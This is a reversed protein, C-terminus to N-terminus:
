SLATRDLQVIILMTFGNNEYVTITGCPSVWGRLNEEVIEAPTERLYASDILTFAAYTFPEPYILEDCAFTEFASWTGFTRVTAERGLIMSLHSTYQTHVLTSEPIRDPLSVLIPDSKWAARNYYLGAAPVRMAVVGNLLYLALLGGSITRPLNIRTMVSVTLLALAPFIVVYHRPGTESIINSRAGMLWFTALYSLIYLIVLAHPYTKIASLRHGRRGAIAAVYIVMLGAAGLGWWDSKLGVLDFVFSFGHVMEKAIRRFGDIVGALTFADATTQTGTFSGTVSRLYFAYLAIPLGAVALAAMPGWQRWFGASRERWAWWLAWLGGMLGFAVGVYRIMTLSAVVLAAWLFLTLSRQGNAPRYPMLLLLFGLAGATFLTESRVFSFGDYSVAPITLTFLGTVFAAGRKGPMLHLALAYTLLLTGILTAITFVRGWLYPDLGIGSALVIPYLPPWQNITATVQPVSYSTIPVRFGDGSQLGRAYVMYWAADYHHNVGNWTIYIGAASAALTLMVMFPLHRRM